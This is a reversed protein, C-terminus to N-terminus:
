IAKAEQLHSYREDRRIKSLRCHAHGFIGGQLGNWLLIDIWDDELKVAFVRELKGIRRVMAKVSNL